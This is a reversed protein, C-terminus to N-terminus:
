TQPKLQQNTPEPDKYVLHFDYYLCGENQICAKHKMQVAYAQALVQVM